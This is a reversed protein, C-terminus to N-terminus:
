RDIWGRPTEREMTGHELFRGQVRLEETMCVRSGVLHAASSTQGALM